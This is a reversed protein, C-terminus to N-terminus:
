NVSITAARIVPAWRDIDKQIAAQMQDPTSGVPIAQLALLRERVDSMRMARAIAQSLKDTIDKPTRPPAAIGTWADAELGPLVESLAPAAPFEPLRENGVIGLLKLRGDKVYPAGNGLATLSVDVHGAVMDNVFQSGGRYPVHTLDIGAQKKIGEFVLQHMSGVGASAYTLKGPQRRAYAILEAISDIALDKRGILILPYKAVVSVPELARPDFSMKKHMLHSFFLWEVACLLVHGDSAARAVSEAGIIGGAGPRNDVIFDQGMAVRLREAVLRALLDPTGGAPSPVVLTVVRNPYPQEAASGSAVANALFIAATLSRISIM